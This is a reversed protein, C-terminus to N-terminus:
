SAVGALRLQGVVDRGVREAVREGGVQEFTSGVQPRHLLHQTVGIEGGRLDVGVDGRRVDLLDVLFGVRPRLRALRCAHGPDHVYHEVPDTDAGQRVRGAVAVGTGVGQAVQAADDVELQGKQSPHTQPVDDRHDAHRRDLTRECEGSPEIELDAPLSVVTPCQSCM